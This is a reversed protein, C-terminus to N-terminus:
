PEPAWNVYAIKCSNNVSWWPLMMNRLLNYVFTRYPEQISVSPNSQTKIPLVHWFRMNYDCICKAFKTLDLNPPLSSPGGLILLFQTHTHTHPPRRTLAHVCEVKVRLDIILRQVANTDTQVSVPRFPWLSFRMSMLPWNRNGWFDRYFCTSTESSVLKLWHATLLLHHLMKKVNILFNWSILFSILQFIFM